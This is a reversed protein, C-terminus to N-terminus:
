PKMKPAPPREAKRAAQFLHAAIYAGALQQGYSTLHVRDWWLLGSDAVERRALYAHLDVFDCNYEGALRALAQQRHGHAGLAPAPMESSLPESVIVSQIHASQNYKLVQKWAALLGPVDPDNYSQQIVVQTPELDLLREFYRKVLFGSTAGPVAGAIFVPRTSAEQWERSLQYVLTDQEHLAGSGWAQSTGLLLVRPVGKPLQAQVQQIQPKSDVFYRGFHDPSTVAILTSQTGDPRTQFAQKGPPQPFSPLQLFAKLPQPPDYPDFNCPPRFPEVVRRRWSELPWLHPQRRQVWPAVEPTFPYLRSWLSADLAVAALLTLAMVYTTYLSAKLAKGLCRRWSFHLAGGLLTMLCWAAALQPAALTPAPRGFTDSFELSGNQRWAAFRYVSVPGRGSRLGVAGNGSPAVKWTPCSQGNVTAQWGSAGVELRLRQLGDGIALPFAKKELFKGQPSVRLWACPFAPHRSLRLAQFSGADRHVEVMLWSAPPCSFDVELQGPVFVRNLLLENYGHWVGLQLSRGVLLNRTTSLEKSGAPPRALYLKLNVWAPRMSLDHFSNALGYSALAGVALSGILNLVLLLVKLPFSM